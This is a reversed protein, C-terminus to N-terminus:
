VVNRIMTPDWTLADNASIHLTPVDYDFNNNFEYDPNNVCLRNFCAWVLINGDDHYPFMNLGCYPCRHKTVRMDIDSESPGKWRDGPIYHEVCKRIHAMQGRHRKMGHGYMTSM